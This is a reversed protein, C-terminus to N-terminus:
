CGACLALLSTSPVASKLWEKMVGSVCRSSWVRYEEEIRDTGSVNVAGCCLVELFSPLKSLPDKLKVINDDKREKRGFRSVM